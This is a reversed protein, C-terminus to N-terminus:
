LRSSIFLISLVYRMISALQQRWNSSLNDYSGDYWFSSQMTPDALEDNPPIEINESFLLSVTHLPSGRPLAEDAFRRAVIQYTTRDCFSAILLALAYNRNDLAESVASEREGRLLLSQVENMDNSPSALSTPRVPVTEADDDLLMEVVAENSRRENRLRGRNNAAINIVKWLLNDRCSAKGEIYSRVESDHSSILPAVSSAAANDPSPVSYKHDRPILEKLRHIVVPGRRLTPKENFSPKAGSLSAAVQPIMVCLRGGFGFTAIAHAPRPRGPVRVESKSQVSEGGSRLSGTSAGNKVPVTPKTWQTENTM